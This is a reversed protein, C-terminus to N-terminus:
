KRFFLDVFSISDLESNLAETWKAKVPSNMAEEYTIPDAVSPMDTDQVERTTGVYAWIQNMQHM